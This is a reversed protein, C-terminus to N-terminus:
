GPARGRSRVRWGRTSRFPQTEHLQRAPETQSVQRPEVSVSSALLTVTPPKERSPTTCAHSSHDNLSTHRARRPRTEHLCWEPSGPEFRYRPLDGVRAGPVKRVCLSYRFTGRTVGRVACWWRAGSGPGIYLSGRWAQVQIGEDCVRAVLAWLLGVKTCFHSCPPIALRRRTTTTGPPTKSTAPPETATPSRCRPVATVHSHCGAARVSSKTRSIARASGKTRHWRPM